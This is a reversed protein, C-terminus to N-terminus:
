AMEEAIKDLFRKYVVVTNALHDGISQSRKGSLFVLLNAFYFLYMFGLQFYHGWKSISQLYQSQKVWNYSNFLNENANNIAYVTFGFSLLTLLFPPLHKLFSERYTIPAGNSKLIHLGVILKGPTAGYKVPLYVYYMLIILQSICFTYYANYLNQTNFYIVAMAVPFVILGDLLLAAFRYGFNGYIAEFNGELKLPMLKQTSM